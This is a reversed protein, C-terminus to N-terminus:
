VVEDAITEEFPRCRFGLETQARTCDFNNNRVLNYIAFDTLPTPKGTIRSVIGLLKAALRATRVSLIRTKQHMGMTRNLIDCMDKMSVLSNSMIYCEGRRGKTCCAIVGAALDRVDVSNFSGEIATNREGNGYKILFQCVPGFSYDDPGCIGSPHVVSADLEPHNKVADLVYQTAEAKTVSYYGVVKSPDFHNVESIATGAPQEPIAGTSSIYVLKKVHHQICLDVINKTGNVNVDHVKKSPNPNVTVISACHIMISDTDEPVTFFRELSPIDCVDGTVLEAERPVYKVAPDGKLVLAGVSKHQAVLQRIISSGLLGAAGTLLYMERNMTQEELVLARFISRCPLLSTFM